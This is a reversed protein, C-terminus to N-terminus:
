YIIFKIVKTTVFIHKSCLRIIYKFKIFWIVLLITHRLERLVSICISVHVNNKSM